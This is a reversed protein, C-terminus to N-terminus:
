VANLNVQAIRRSEAYRNAPLADLDTHWSGAARMDREVAPQPQENRRLCLWKIVGFRRDERWAKFLPLIDDTTLSETDAFGWAFVDNALVFVILTPGEETKRFPCIYKRHNLGLVENELLIAVALDECIDEKGDHIYVPDEHGLDSAIDIASETM